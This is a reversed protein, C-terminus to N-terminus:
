YGLQILHEDAIAECLEIQVCEAQDMVDEISMTHLFNVFPPINLQLVDVFRTQLNDHLFSLHIVIVTQLECDIEKGDLSPFHCFIHTMAKMKWIVLKNMFTKMIQYARLINIMDQNQLSLNLENHKRCIEELYLILMKNDILLNRLIIDRPHLFESVNDFLLVFRSQCSGISLWRVDTSYVLRHVNEDRCAEQFIRDHLARSKM